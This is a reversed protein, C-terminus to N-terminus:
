KNVTGIKNEVSKIKGEISNIKNKAIDFKAVCYVRESHPELVAYTDEILQLAEKLTDTEFVTGMPNLKYNYGSEKIKKIVESVYQSLSIGKDLPFLAIETTVSM